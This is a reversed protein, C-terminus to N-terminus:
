KVLREDAQKVIRDLGEQVERPLELPKLRSKLRRYKDLTRAYLDKGGESNWAERSKLTFLETRLFDHCHRFTHDRELYHGGGATDLIEQWALTDDDVKVGSIARKIIKVMDNDAIAQVPSCAKNGEVNGVGSLIDCGVGSVLLMGIAKEFASQGDPMYTDTGIGWTYTPIHFADKIFQASAAAGLHSEVNGCLSRGTRMDM